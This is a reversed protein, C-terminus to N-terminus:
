EPTRARTENCEIRERIEAAKRRCRLVRVRLTGAAVGFTKAMEGYSQGAILAKWLRICDEPVGDIIRRALRWVDAAEIADAPSHSDPPLLEDILETTRWRRRSRLRDLCTTVAVRRVYGKLTGAGSYRGRRLAETVQLAADGVADEWDDGFRGRFPWAALRIWTAVSDVADARGALFAGALEQDMAVMMRDITLFRIETGATTPTTLM